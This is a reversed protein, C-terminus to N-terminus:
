ANFPQCVAPKFAWSFGNIQGQTGQVQPTPRALLSKFPKFAPLLLSSRWYSAIARTPLCCCALPLGVFVNWVESPGLRRGQRPSPLPRRIKEVLHGNAHGM